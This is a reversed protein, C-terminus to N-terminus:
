DIISTTRIPYFWPKVLNNFVIQPSKPNLLFGKELDIAYREKQYLPVDSSIEYLFRWREDIQENTVKFLEREDYLPMLINYFLPIGDPYSAAKLKEISGLIELESDFCPIGKTFNLVLPAPYPELVKTTRYIYSSTNNDWKESTIYKGEENILEKWLLLEDAVANLAESLRGSGM